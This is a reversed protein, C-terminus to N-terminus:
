YIDIAYLYNLLSFRVRINRLIVVDHLQVDPLSSMKDNFYKIKLGEWSNFGFESDKLTFTIVASSGGSQFKPLIDVVVGIVSIYGQSSLATSIDVFNPPLAPM